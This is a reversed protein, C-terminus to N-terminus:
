PFESTFWDGMQAPRIGARPINQEGTEKSFYVNNPRKSNGNDELYTHWATFFAENDCKRAVM